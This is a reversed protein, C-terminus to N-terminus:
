DTQEQGASGKESFLWKFLGPESLAHLWITDHGAEPYLTFSVSAGATLLAEAIKKTRISPVVEDKQGAFIQWRSKAMSAVEEEDGDGSIAVAAEFLGPYQAVMEFTGYAGMSFGGISIRDTEVRYLKQLSDVLAKLKVTIEEDFWFNGLPCQPYVIIAPYNERISDALFHSSGISLQIENDDGREGMGHLFIHLPYHAVSDYTRPLLIRYPLPGSNGFYFLDPQVKEDPKAEEESIEPPAEAETERAPPPTPIVDEDNNCAFALLLVFSFITLLSKM